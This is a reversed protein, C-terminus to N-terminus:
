ASRSARANRVHAAAAAVSGPASATIAASCSRCRAKTSFSRAVTQFCSSACAHRHGQHLAQACRGPGQTEPIPTRIDGKDVVTCASRPSSSASAPLASRRRGWTSAAATAASISRCASSIFPKADPDGGGQLDDLDRRSGPSVITTLAMRTRRSRALFDRMENKKNVVNHALFLGGPQRAPLGPRLVEQLRAELRRPVRPRVHGGAEPDGTFADGPVVSVIDALGARQINAAAEKARVPDYEITVLRGGTERLAWASGSPATAAPRASRSSGGPAPRPSWRRAPLPRGRRVGRAPGQRGRPHRSSQKLAPTPQVVSAPPYTKAISRYNRHKGLGSTCFTCYFHADQM